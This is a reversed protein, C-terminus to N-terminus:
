YAYTRWRPVVARRRKRRPEILTDKRQRYTSRWAGDDPANALLRNLHHEAARIETLWTGLEAQKEINVMNRGERQQLRKRRRALLLWAKVISMHPGVM